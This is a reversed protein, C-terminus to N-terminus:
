VPKDLLSLRQKLLGWPGRSKGKLKIRLLERVELSLNQLVTTTAGNAICAPYFGVTYEPDHAIHRLQETVPLKLLQIILQDRELTKRDRLTNEGARKRAVRHATATAITIQQEQHWQQRRENLDAQERRYDSLSSSRTRGGFPVYENRRNKFIWDALADVEDGLARAQIIEFIWIASAASGGIWCHEKEAITLGRVLAFLQPETMASCVPQWTSRGLRNISDRHKLKSLALQDIETGFETVEGLSILLAISAEFQKPLPM